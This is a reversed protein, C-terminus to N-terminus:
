FFPDEVSILFPDSDDSYRFLVYFVWFRYDRDWLQSRSLFIRAMRKLRGIQASCLAQKLGSDGIRSKVEVFLISGASRAVIDLEGYPPCSYNRAVIEMGMSALRAAVAEEGQRGLKQSENM